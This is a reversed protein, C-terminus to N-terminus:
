KVSAPVTAADMTAHTDSLTKAKNLITWDTKYSWYVLYNKSAAVNAPNFQIQYSVQNFKQGMDILTWSQDSEFVDADDNAASLVEKPFSAQKMSILDGFTFSDNFRDSAFNLSAVVPNLYNQQDYNLLVCRIINDGIPYQNSNENAQIPQSRIFPIYTEYGVAKLPKIEIFSSTLYADDFTGDQCSVELYIYDDGALRIVGGLEINFAVQTRGDGLKTYHEVGNYFALQGRKNLNSALGILKLNDQIIVHEMGDRNLVAKFTVKSFDIKSSGFVPDGGVIANATLVGKVSFGNISQSSIKQDRSQLHQLQM